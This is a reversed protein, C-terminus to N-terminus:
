PPGASLLARTAWGGCGESANTKTTSASVRKPDPTRLEELRGFAATANSVRTGLDARDLIDMAMAATM